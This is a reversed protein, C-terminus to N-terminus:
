IYREIRKKGIAWISNNCHSFLCTPIFPGRPHHPHYHYQSPHMVAAAATRCRWHFTIRVVSSATSHTRQLFLSLSLSILKCVNYIMGISEACKRPACLYKFQFQQQQQQEEDEEKTGSGTPHHDEWGPRPACCGFLPNQWVGCVVIYFKFSTFYFNKAFYLNTIIISKNPQPQFFLGLGGTRRGRAALRAQNTPQNQLFVAWNFRIM